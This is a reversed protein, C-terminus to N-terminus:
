SSCDREKCASALNNKTIEWEMPYRDHTHIQLAAEFCAIAKDLNEAKEEIEGLDRFTNGLNNQTMAWELPYKDLKYIKLAKQYCDIAAEFNDKHNKEEKQTVRDGYANGLNYLTAACEEPLSEPSIFVISSEYGAIAVELNIRRNGTPFEQMLSSFASTLVALNEADESEAQTFTDHIWQKFSAVFNDDLLELNKQLLPYIVDPNAESEETMFLLQILLNLQPDVDVNADSLPLELSEALLIIISNLFQATNEDGEAAFGQSVQEMVDILEADLLEPHASLVDPEKGSPCSLVQNILSIYEEARKEDM